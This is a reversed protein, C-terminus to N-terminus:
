GKERTCIEIQEVKLDTCVKGRGLRLGGKLVFFFFAFLNWTFERIMQLLM